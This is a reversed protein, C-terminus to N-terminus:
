FWYNTKAVLHLCVHGILAVVEVCSANIRQLQLQKCTSVYVSMNKSLELWMAGKLGCSLIM